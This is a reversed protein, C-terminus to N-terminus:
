VTGVIAGVLSLGRPETWALFMGAFFPLKSVQLVDAVFASNGRAVFFPLELV